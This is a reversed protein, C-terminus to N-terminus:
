LGPLITLSIRCSTSSIGSVSYSMKLASAGGVGAGEMIRVPLGFARLQGFANLTGREEVDKEASAYLNPEYTAKKPDGAESRPPGGIIGGDLYEVRPAREKLVRGIERSSAPNVANCDVFVPSEHRADRGLGADLCRLAFAHADSPPVISLIWRVGRSTCIESLPAHHMGAREARAITGPSRSTLDTLVTCGHATLRAAIAAGMEGAAIVAITPPSSM